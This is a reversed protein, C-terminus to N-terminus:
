VVLESTQSSACANPLTGSKSFLTVPGWQRDNHTLNWPLNLHLEAEHSVEIDYKTTQCFKSHWLGEHSFEMSLSPDTTMSYSFMHNVHMAITPAVHLDATGRLGTTGSISPTLKDTINSKMLSWKNTPDWSVYDDGIDFALNVGAKGEGKQLMDVNGVLHLNVDFWFVFPVPGIHFRVVPNDEGGLVLDTKDFGMSWAKQAAMDLDVSAVASANRFGARLGQLKFWRIDLEFFLDTDLGFFCSDCALALNSNTFVPLSKAAAKCTGDVNVGICKRTDETAGCLETSKVSTYNITADSYIEDYQAASTKVDLEAGDLEAGNVRRILLAKTPDRDHPLPCSFKHGGTFYINGGKAIHWWEEALAQSSFVLRLSSGDTDCQVDELNEVTSLDFIDTAAVGFTADYSVHHHRGGEDCFSHTGLQRQSAAVVGVCLAAPLARFATM